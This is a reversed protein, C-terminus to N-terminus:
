FVNFFLEVDDEKFNVASIVEEDLTPLGYSAM